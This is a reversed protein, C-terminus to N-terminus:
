NPPWRNLSGVIPGMKKEERGGSGIRHGIEVRRRRCGRRPRLAPPRRRWAAAADAIAGVESFVSASAVATDGRGHHTRSQIWPSSTTERRTRRLDSGKEGLTVEGPTADGCRGDDDETPDVPSLDKQGKMTTM